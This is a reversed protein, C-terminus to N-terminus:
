SSPYSNDNTIWVSSCYSRWLCSIHLKMSMLKLSSKCILRAGSIVRGFVGCADHFLVTLVSWEVLNVLHQTAVTIRNVGLHLDCTLSQAPPRRQLHLSTVKHRFYFSNLSITGQFISSGQHSLLLSDVLWATEIGPDPLDGPSPFPLGSWYEQRPFGM